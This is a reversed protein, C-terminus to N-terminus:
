IRNLLNRRVIESKWGAKSCVSNQKDQNYCWILEDYPVDMLPVMMWKWFRDYDEKPIPQEGMALAAIAAADFIEKLEKSNEMNKLLKKGDETVKDATEKSTLYFTDSIYPEYFANAKMKERLCYQSNTLNQM